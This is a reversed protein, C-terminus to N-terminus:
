RIERSGGMNGQTPRQPCRRQFQPDPPRPFPHSRHTSHNRTEIGKLLSAAWAPRSVLVDIVPPRNETRFAGYNKSLNEGITPDDFVVLGRVATRSLHRTELLSECIKRLDDPRADILTKLATERSALDATEDFVTEKLSDLARGDGFLASLERALTETSETKGFATAADSWNAPIPAKRWGKFGDSLGQLIHPAVEPKAVALDILSAVPEPKTEINGALARSIFKLLDPWATAEAVKILSAPDSESLPSIGFWVMCPLNHDAADEERSGLAAALVARDALPLRQLTSSLTLRVLGSPDTKALGSFKELLEADHPPTLHPIPGFM